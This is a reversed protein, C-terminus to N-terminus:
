EHLSHILPHLPPLQLRSRQPRRGGLHRAPRLLPRHDAAEAGSCIDGKWGSAANTFGIFLQAQSYLKSTNDDVNFVYRIGPYAPTPTNLLVNSEVVPAGSDGSFAPTNLGWTSGVKVATPEGNLSKIVFGHRQDPYTGNAQASWVGASM